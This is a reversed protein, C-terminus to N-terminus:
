QKPDDNITTIKLYPEDLIDSDTKVGTKNPILEVQVLKSKEIYILSPNTVWRSKLCIKLNSGTETLDYIKLIDALQLMEAKKSIYIMIIGYQAAKGYKTLSDSNSNVRVSDIFDPNIVLHNLDTKFSNVIAMPQKTYDIKNPGDLTIKTQAYLTSTFLFLFSILTLITKM